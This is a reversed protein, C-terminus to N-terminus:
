ERSQIRRGGESVGERCHVEDGHRVTLDGERWRSHPTKGASLFPSNSLLHFVLPSNADRDEGLMPCHAAYSSSQYVVPDHPDWTGNNKAGRFHSDRGREIETIDVGKGQDEDNKEQQRRWRKKMINTPEKTEEGDNRRWKM